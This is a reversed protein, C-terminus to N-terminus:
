RSEVDIYGRRVAREVAEFAAVAEEFLRRKETLGLEAVSEPTWDTEFVAALYNARLVATKEAFAMLKPQDVHPIRRAIAARNAERFLGEVEIMFRGASPPRSSHPDSMQVVEIPEYEGNQLSTRGRFRAVGARHAEFM